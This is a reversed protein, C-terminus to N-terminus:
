NKKNSGGTATPTNFKNNFEPGKKEAVISNEKVVEQKNVEEKPLDNKLEKPKRVESIKNELSNIVKKEKGLQLETWTAEKFFESNGVTPIISPLRDSTVAGDYFTLQPIGGQNEAKKLYEDVKSASFPITYVLRNQKTQAEGTEPNTTKIPLEVIGERTSYRDKYVGDATFFDVNKNVVLYEKGDDSSRIRNIVKIKDKTTLGDQNYLTQIRNDEDDLEFVAGNERAVNVKEQIYDCYVPEDAAKKEIQFKGM